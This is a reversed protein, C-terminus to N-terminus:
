AETDKQLWRWRTQWVIPAVKVLHVTAILNGVAVLVLLLAVSDLLMLLLVSLGAAVVMYLANIINNVAIAQSRFEDTSATQLWTYLPVTFFGGFFGIFLTSVMTPLHGPSQMFAGLTLVPAGTPYRGLSPLALCLGAVTLGMCGVLVLGLEIRGRSLKACTISGIGIGISFLGLLFAYVNEDGGLHLRTFSTLQTTYTAGLLWFWSIGLVAARIDRIKWAQKILSLSDGVFNPSIRTDPTIAPAKPMFHAFAYGVLAVGGTIAVMTWPGGKVMQSGIIQGILVSVFTGMEVMGNGGILERPKLYQPLISYKVLGFFTSHIGMLFLAFFLTWASHTVYGIAAVVMIVIEFFKIVRAVRAKDFKQCVHSATASFLFYPLIFIGASINVLQEPPLGLVALGHFSILVAISTRILNDNLAGLMQTGFLPFFRRKGFFSFDTKM